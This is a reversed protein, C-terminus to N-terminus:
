TVLKSLKNSVVSFPNIYMGDLYTGDESKSSVPLSGGSSKIQFM